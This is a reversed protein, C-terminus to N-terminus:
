APVKLCAALRNGIRRAEPRVQECRADAEPCRPSFACGPPMANLPPPVGPIAPLMGGTPMDIRPTCMFLGKTYPHAPAAFLEDVPAHEVIRGGYMVAVEDCVGAVVSLDHTILIIATGAHDKLKGLTSLITAQVTVDLATTPEDAILLSPKCLLAMAIMVRQRMGGSLEHPYQRLRREPESLRLVELMALSEALAQKRSFGKHVQLVEALQDGIRMHPTLGTISDQFVLSMRAGRLEDLRRRPAGILEEGEFLASGTVTGNQPLLGLMGLMTQSKGSGSEGVIGLCRGPELSFSVDKVAQLTGRPTRFSVGLNSIELMAM